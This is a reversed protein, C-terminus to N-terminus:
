LVKGLCAISAQVEAPQHGCGGVREKRPKRTSSAANSFCGKCLSKDNPPEVQNPWPAQSAQSRQKSPSIAHKQLLLAAGDQAVVPASVCHPSPPGSCGRRNCFEPPMTGALTGDGLKRGGPRLTTCTSTLTSTDMTAIALAPSEHCTKSRPPRPLGPADRLGARTM